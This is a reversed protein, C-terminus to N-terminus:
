RNDAQIGSGDDTDRELNTSKGIAYIPEDDYTCPKPKPRAKIRPFDEQFKHRDTKSM